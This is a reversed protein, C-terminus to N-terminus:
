SESFGSNEKPWPRVYRKRVGRYDTPTRAVALGEFITRSFYFACLESLSFGVEALMKFPQGTLKWFVRGDITGRRSAEVELLIKWQRVVEANRPM